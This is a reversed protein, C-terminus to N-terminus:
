KAMNVSSQGDLTNLVSKTKGLFKEYIECVKSSINKEVADVFPQEQISNGLLNRLLDYGGGGKSLNEQLKMVMAEVISRSILKTLDQCSKLAKFFETPRTAILSVFFKQIYGDGFGLKSLISNVVREVITELGSPLLNGFLNRVFDLLQENLLNEESLFSIEKLIRFSLIAKQQETLRQYKKYSSSLLRLRNEVIKRETILKKQKILQENLAMRVKNDITKEKTNEKLQWSSGVDKRLYRKIENYNLKNNLIGYPSLQGRVNLQEDSNDPNALDGIKLKLNEYFGSNYCAFIQGKYTKRQNDNLRNGGEIKTLIAGRLYNIITNKCTEEDLGSSTPSVLNTAPSGKLAYYVGKLGYNDLTQQEYKSNLEDKYYLLDFSATGSKLKLRKEDDNPYFNQLYQNFKKFRDSIAGANILNQLKLRTQELRNYIDEYDTIGLEKALDIYLQNLNKDEATGRLRAIQNQENRVFNFEGPSTEKIIRGDYVVINGRQTVIGSTYIRGGVNIPIPDGTKSNNKLNRLVGNVQNFPPGSLINLENSPANVVSNGGKNSPQTNVGSQEKIINKM